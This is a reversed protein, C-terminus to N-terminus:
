GYCCATTALIRFSTAAELVQEDEAAPATLQGEAQEQDVEMREPAASEVAGDGM